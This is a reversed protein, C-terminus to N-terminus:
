PQEQFRKSLWLSPQEVLTQVYDLGLDGPYRAQLQAATLRLGTALRARAMGARTCQLEIKGSSGGGEAPSATRSVVVKDMYGQWRAIAAGAPQFTEDLLQLMLTVAKGKYTTPDGMVAALMGANVISLSLAVREASSNESEGIPTVDTLNGLGTYTNGGSTVDVPATTYRVTGTTFSLTVLWATGAVGNAARATATGDLTLM